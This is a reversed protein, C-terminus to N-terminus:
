QSASGHWPERKNHKLRNKRNFCKRFWRAIVLVFLKYAISAKMKKFRSQDSVVSSFNSQSTMDLLKKLGSLSPMQVSSLLMAM